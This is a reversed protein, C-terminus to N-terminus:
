RAMSCFALSFGIGNMWYSAAINPHWLPNLRAGNWFLLEQMFSPVRNLLLLLTDLVLVLSAAVFMGGIWRLGACARDDSLAAYPFAMLYVFFVTGMPHNEMGSLKHICQAIVFWSVMAAALLLRGRAFRSQKERLVYGLFLLCPVVLYTEALYYAIGSFQSEMTIFLFDIIGVALLLLMPVNRGSTGENQLLKM